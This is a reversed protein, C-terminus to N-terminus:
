IISKTVVLKLRLHIIMFLKERQESTLSNETVHQFKIQYQEKKKTGIHTGAIEDGQIVAPTGFVFMTGVLVSFVRQSFKRIAFQQKQEGMQWKSRNSKAM